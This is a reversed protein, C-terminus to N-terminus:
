SSFSRGLIAIETPSAVVDPQRPVRRRRDGAPSGRVAASGFPSAPNIAPAMREIARRVTRVFSAACRRERDSLAADLGPPDGRWNADRWLRALSIRVGLRALASVEIRLASSERRNAELDGARRLRIEFRRGAELQHALEHAIGEIIALDGLHSTGYGVLGRRGAEDHMADRVIERNSKRTVAM